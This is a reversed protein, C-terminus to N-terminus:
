QLYQRHADEWDLWVRTKPIVAGVRVFTRKAERCEQRFKVQMPDIDPRSAKDAIMDESCIWKLHIDIGTRLELDVIMRVVPYM